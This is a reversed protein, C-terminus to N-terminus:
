SAGDSSMRKRSVRKSRRKAVIDRDWTGAFIDECEDEDDSNFEVDEDEDSEGRSGDSTRRRGNIAAMHLASPATDDFGPLEVDYWSRFSVVCETELIFKGVKYRQNAEKADVYKWGLKSHCVLCSIDAVTHWGTVLQRSEAKGVKINILDRSATTTMSTPSSSLDSESLPPSVLYARGYRGTFGKSIIQHSFALDASCTSCRLSDPNTREIKYRPPAGNTLPPFTTEDPPSGAPSTAASSAPSAEPSYPASVNPRTELSSDTTRRRFPIRLTPLLFVPFIAQPPSAAASDRDRAM